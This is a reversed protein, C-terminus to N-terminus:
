NKTILKRNLHSFLFDMIASFIFTVALFCFIGISYSLDSCFICFMCIIFLQYVYMPYSVKGLFTFIRFSFLKSTYTLDSFALTIGVFLMLVYYFDQQTNASFMSGAIVGVFLFIEFLSLLVRVRKTLSFEKIKLYNSLTYSLTGLSMAAFGRTLADSLGLFQSGGWVDLHGINASFFSYTALVAFPAIITLYLKENFRILAYIFFGAILLSSLYWTPYNLLGFSKLGSAHLFLLEFIYSGGKKLWQVLGSGSVIMSSIFLLLFATIYHPYLKKVRSLTFAYSSLTKTHGSKMIMYGSILFFFETGIYAGSFYPTSKFYSNSFHMIAITCIFLFRFFEIENNRSSSKVISQQSM